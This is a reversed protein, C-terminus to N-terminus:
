ISFVKGSQVKKSMTGVIISRTLRWILETQKNHTKRAIEYRRPTM